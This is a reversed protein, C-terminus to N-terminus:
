KSARLGEITRKLERNEQLLSSREVQLQTDPLRKLRSVESRLASSQLWWGVALAVVVALWLLDRITFRLRM